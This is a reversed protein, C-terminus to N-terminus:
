FLVANSFYSPYNAQLQYPPFIPQMPYYRNPHFSRSSPRFPQFTECQQRVISAVIIAITITIISILSMNSIKTM